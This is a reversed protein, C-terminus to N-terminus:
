DKIREEFRKIQAEAEDKSTGYTEQISDVLEVRKGAILDLQEETLSRWQAKVKGKYQKWNGEVINWNMDLEKHEHESRRLPASRAAQTAAPEDGGPGRVCRGTPFFVWPRVSKKAVGASVALRSAHGPATQVSACKSGFLEVIQTVAEPFAM